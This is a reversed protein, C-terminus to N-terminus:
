DLVSKIFLTSFIYEEGQLDHLPLHRYGESLNCLRATYVAFMNDNSHVSFRIFTFQYDEKRINVTWHSNWVPNFGNNIVSQTRFKSAATIAASSTDNNKKLKYLSTNSSTPTPTESSNSIFCGKTNGFLEVVVYPDFSEDNKFKSPRPLQQASIVTLHLKVEENISSTSTTSSHSAFRKFYKGIMSTPEPPLIESPKLVYGERADFLANNIQLGIDNTQWNLAVMQVGRKWYPIPDFNKSTVRYGSPYVRMLFRRNHKEFQSVKEGDRLMSNAVRESLSFIHNPTKSIPLSFNRFKIGSCYVGLDALPKVIKTQDKKDHKKQQEQLQKSQKGSGSSEDSMWETTTTSAFTDSSLSDSTGSNTCGCSSSATASCSKVKILIKHKLEMPSPLSVFNNMLPETVLYDDLAEKMIEVMKLQNESNCHVELSVILPYPSFIFSYKRITNMVDRFDVSSTFTRGHCVIPGDEGDWCDVEVCRCGNQLARIYPEVSSEGAVQRGLLYTNHSSSIFYENLPRTMEEEVPKIPKFYKPSFLFDAFGESHVFKDQPSAFKNFLKEIRKDSMDFEKQVERIFRYFAEYSMRPGQMDAHNDFIQNIEERSKMLKVFTQFERFDLYGSSDEDAQRFKEELFAKSCNIHLRKTLKEVTEFSLREQSDVFRSWHVNVFKEGPMALGSMLDQRYKVLKRLVKIFLDFEEQNIGLIHLAKLKSDNDTYIISAWKSSLTSSVKLEERYNKADDATRIQFIKDVLLKASSKTDWSVVGTEPDISFKCNVRKRHTIKLFSVGSQLEKPVVVAETEPNKICLSDISCTRNAYRDLNKQRTVPGAVEKLDEDTFSNSRSGVSLKRTARQSHSKGSEVVNGVRDMVKKSVRQLISASSTSNGSIELPSTNTSSDSSLVNDGSDSSTQPNSAGSIGTNISLQNMFPDSISFLAAM